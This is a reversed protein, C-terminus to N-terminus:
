YFITIENMSLELYKYISFVVMNIFLCSYITVNVWKCIPQLYYGKLM